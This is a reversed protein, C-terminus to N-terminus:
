KKLAKNLSEEARQAAGDLERQRIEAERIEQEEKAKNRKVREILEYYDADMQEREKKAEVIAERISAITRSIIGM